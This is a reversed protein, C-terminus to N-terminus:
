GLRSPRHLECYLARQAALNRRLTHSPRPARRRSVASQLRRRPGRLAGHPAQPCAAPARRPRQCGSGQAAPHSSPGTGYLTLTRRGAPHEDLAAHAPQGASRHESSHRVQQLPAATTDPGCRAQLGLRTTHGMPPLRCALQRRDALCRRSERWGSRYSGSQLLAAAASAIAARARMLSDSRSILKDPPKKVASM